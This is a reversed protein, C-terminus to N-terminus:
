NMMLNMLSPIMLPMELESKRTRRRPAKKYLCIWDYLAINEYMAPRYVYDSVKSLGIFHGQSKNIVVNDQVKDLDPIEDSNGEQWTNVVEKVYGRWYFPIFIHDTYHDPNGLVYLSAMLGGIESKAM